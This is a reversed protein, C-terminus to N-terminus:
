AARLQQVVRYGDHEAWALTGNEIARKLCPMMRVRGDLTIAIFAFDVRSACGAAVLLEAPFPNPLSVVRLDRRQARILSFILAMPASSLVFGGPAIKTGNPISEAANELSIFRTRTAM